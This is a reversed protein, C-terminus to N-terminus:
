YLNVRVLLCPNSVQYSATARPDQAQLGHQLSQPTVTNPRGQPPTTQAALQYPSQQQQRVINPNVSLSPDVNAAHGYSASAAHNGFQGYQYPSATRNALGQNAYPSSIQSYPQAPYTNHHWTQAQSNDPVLAAHQLQSNWSQADYQDVSYINQYPSNTYLNQAPPPLQDGPVHTPAMTHAVISKDILGIPRGRM